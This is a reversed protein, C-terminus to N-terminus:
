KNHIFIEGLGGFDGVVVDIGLRKALRISEHAAIGNDVTVILQIGQKAFQLVADKSLGYGEDRHPLYPLCTHGALEITAKLIACSALGDCDYDGFVATPEKHHIAALIRNVVPEMGPITLPHPVQSWSSPALFSDINTIGRKEFVRLLSRPVRM